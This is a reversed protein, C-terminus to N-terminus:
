RRSRRTDRTRRDSSESSASTYDSYSYSSGTYETKARKKDRRRKLGLVVALTALGAAVAGAGGVGGTKKPPRAPKRGGYWTRGGAAAGGGHHSHREEIYTEETVRRRKNRGLIGDLIGKFCCFACLLLLLLLGAIVGIVIGAIAGASLGNNAAVQMGTVASGDTAVPAQFAVTTTAATSIVTAVTNSTPRIFASAASTTAPTYYIIEGASSGGYAACKGLEQCFQGSACCISGCSVENLAVNCPVGTVVPAQVTAFSTVVVTQQTPAPTAYGVFSSYTTVVTVLDTRVYTSTFYQWQGNLNNAQVTATQILAAGGGSGCSAVNAADTYCTQDAACCFQSQYGCPNSCQRLELSSNQSQILIDDKPYPTAHTRHTSTLLVALLSLLTPPAQSLRM